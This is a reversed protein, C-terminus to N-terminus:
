SDLSLYFFLAVDTPGSREDGYLAANLGVLRFGHAMYFLIAPYNTNQTELLIGRVGERLAAWKLDELMREAIGQRRRDARVRIDCLWVTQNWRELKWTTLGTLEQGDFSGIFRLNEAPGYLDILSDLSGSDLRRTAERGREAAELNWTLAPAEGSVELRLYRRSSYESPFIELSRV